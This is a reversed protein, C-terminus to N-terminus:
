GPVSAPAVVIALRGARNWESAFGEFGDERQGRAPDFMLVRRAHSNIGVVVEFHSLAKDGYHQVLGVLVPRDLGIERELDALEGAILFARLGKKRVLDRLAGAAIGHAADVPLAKAIEASSSEPTGWRGLVMALAAAGCDRLSSQRVMPVGSVLVWGAERNLDRASVTHASGHYCAPLAGAAVLVLLTAGRTLDHRKM